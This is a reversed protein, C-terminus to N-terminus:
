RDPCPRGQRGRCCGGVTSAKPTRDARQGGRANPSVVPLAAPGAAPAGGIAESAWEPLPLALSDRGNKALVFLAGAGLACAAILRTCHKRAPLNMHVLRHCFGRVSCCTLCGTLSKPLLRPRSPFGVPPPVAATLAPGEVSGTLGQKEGGYGFLLGFNKLGYDVWQALLYGGIAATTAAIAEDITDVVLGDHAKRFDVPERCLFIRVSSPVSLLAVGGARAAIARRDREGECDSRHGLPGIVEVVVEPNVHDEIGVEEFVVEREYRLKRRWYGLTSVPIGTEPSLEEYTLGERDKRVLAGRMREADHKGMWM